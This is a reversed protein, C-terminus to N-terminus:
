EGLGLDLPCRRSRFLAFVMRGGGRRTLWLLWNPCWWYGILIVLRIM